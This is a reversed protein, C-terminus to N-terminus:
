LTNGFSQAQFTDTLLTSLRTRVLYLGVGAALGSALAYGDTPSAGLGYAGAVLGIVGGLLAVSVLLAEDRLDFYYLLLIELWSVLQLSAGVMAVRFQPALSTPLSALRMMEPAAALGIGLVVAQVLVAGRLIRKAESAIASAAQRLVSLASGGNLGQYFSRFRRYFVTEIQVYVWGFAPVVSFWAIAAVSSHQSAAAPGALAWIVVKDTWISLYYVLSSIALLWYESFAPRIRAQEDGDRPIAGAVGRFIIVLTVVQGVTFGILYGLAGLGLGRCLWLAAAMGLPAGICFARLVVVPSCLGGGVGLLLWQAGVVATLFVGVVGITVPPRLLVVLLIGIGLFAFLTLNLMRWLPAPVRELHKDYLRDATYRSVVVHVPASLIVTLAYVFTVLHEVLPFLPSEDGRAFLRISMLVSTTLLWPACTVAIGTMYAGMSGGVSGRDIMKQLKWGIGAM